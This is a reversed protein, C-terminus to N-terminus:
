YFLCLLYLVKDHGAIILENSIECVAAAFNQLCVLSMCGYELAVISIELM